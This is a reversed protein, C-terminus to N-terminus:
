PYKQYMKERNFELVPIKEDENELESFINCNFPIINNNESQIENWYRKFEPDRLM